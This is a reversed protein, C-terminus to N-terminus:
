LDKEMLYYDGGYLEAEGVTLFGVRLYTKYAPTNAKAVSLHLAKCDRERLINEVEGVMKGSLGKGRHEKAVAVRAIEAGDHTFCDFEDLENEHVISIAGIVKEGDTLVFLNDSALDDRIELMGPYADNWVCFEDGVVSKYLSYVACTDEQEAKRFVYKDFSMM